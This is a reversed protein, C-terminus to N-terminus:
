KMLSHIMDKQKIKEGSTLVKIQSKPLSNTQKNM